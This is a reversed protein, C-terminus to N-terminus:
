YLLNHAELLMQMVLTLNDRKPSVILVTSGFTTDSVAVSYVNPLMQAPLIISIVFLTM